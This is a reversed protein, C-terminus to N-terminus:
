KNTSARNDPPRAYKLSSFSCGSRKGHEFHFRTYIKCWSWIRRLFEKSKTGFDLMSDDVYASVLACFSHLPVLQGKIQVHRNLDESTKKFATRAELSLTSIERSRELLLRFLYLGEYGLPVVVKVIQNRLLNQVPYGKSNEGRHSSDHQPLISLCRGPCLLLYGVHAQIVVPEMVSRLVSTVDEITPTLVSQPLTTAREKWWRFYAKPHKANPHQVFLADWSLRSVLEISKLQHPAYSIRRSIVPGFAAGSVDKHMGSASAQDEVELNKKLGNMNKGNPANSFYLAYLSDIIHKGGPNSALVDEDTYVERFSPKAAFAGGGLVICSQFYGELLSLVYCLYCTLQARISGVSQTSMRLKTEIDMVNLDQDDIEPIHALLPIRLEAVEHKLFEPMDASASKHSSETTQYTVAGLEESWSSASSKGLTFFDVILLCPHHKGLSINNRSKIFLLAHKRILSMDRKIHDDVPFMNELRCACALLNKRVGNLKAICRASYDQLKQRQKALIHRLIEVGKKCRYTKRQSKQTKNSYPIVTKSHLSRELNRWILYNRRLSVRKLVLGRLLRLFVITESNSVDVRHSTGVSPTSKIFTQAVENDSKNPPSSSSPIGGLSPESRLTLDINRAENTAVSGIDRAQHETTVGGKLELCRFALYSKTNMASPSLIRGSRTQSSLHQILDSLNNSLSHVADRLSGDRTLVFIEKIASATSTGCNYHPLIACFMAYLIWLDGSDAGRPVRILTVQNQKVIPLSPSLVGAIGQEDILIMHTKENPFSDSVNSFIDLDYFGGENAYDMILLREIQFYPIEQLLRRAKEAVRDHRETFCNGNQTLSSNLTKNMLVNAGSSEDVLSADNIYKVGTVKRLRADDVASLEEKSRKSRVYRTANAAFQSPLNLISRYMLELGLRVLDDTGYCSPTSIEGSAISDKFKTKLPLDDLRKKSISLEESVPKKNRPQSRSREKETTMNYNSRAEATKAFFPCSNTFM